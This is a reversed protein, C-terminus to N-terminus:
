EDEKGVRKKYAEYAIRLHEKIYEEMQEKTINKYLHKLDYKM